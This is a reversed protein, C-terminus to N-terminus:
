TLVSHCAVKDVVVVGVSVEENELEEIIGDEGAVGTGIPMATSSDGAGEAVGGDAAQVAAEVGGNGAAAAEAVGAAAARAAAAERYERSGGSTGWGIVLLNSDRNSATVMSDEEGRECVCLCTSHSFLSGMFHHAIGDELGVAIGLGYMAFFAKVKVHFSAHNAFAFQYGCTTPLGCGDYNLLRLVSSWKNMEAMEKWVALQCKFLTDAKDVHDSTAFGFIPTHTKSPVNGTMILSVCKLWMTFRGLKKYLEVYRYHPDSPQM